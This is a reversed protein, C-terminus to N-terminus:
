HIYKGAELANERNEKLNPQKINWKTLPLNNYDEMSYLKVMEMNKGHYRPVFVEKEKSFLDKLIPVTDIEDSTSLYVSVRKSDKYQPLSILQLFM